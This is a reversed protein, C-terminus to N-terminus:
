RGVQGRPAVQPLHAAAPLLGQQEANQAASRHQKIDGRVMRHARSIIHLDKLGTVTHKERSQHSAGLPSPTVPQTTFYHM